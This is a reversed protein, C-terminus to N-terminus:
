LQRMNEEEIRKWRQVMSEARPEANHQEQTFSIAKIDAVEEAEEDEEGTAPPEEEAPPTDSPPAYQSAYKKGFMPSSTIKEKMKQFRALLESQTEPAPSEAPAQEGDEKVEEKAKGWLDTFHLADFPEDKEKRQRAYRDRGTHELNMLADLALQVLVALTLDLGAALQVGYYIYGGVDKTVCKMSGAAAQFM